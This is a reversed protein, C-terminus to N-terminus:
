RHIDCTFEHGSTGGIVYLYNERVLIAQGYLQDPKDGKTTLREIMRKGYPWMLHTDNSRKEGFPFGTGGYLVLCDDTMTLANSVSERPMEELKLTFM